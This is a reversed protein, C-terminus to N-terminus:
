GRITIHSRHTSLILLFGSLELIGYGPWKLMILVDSLAMKHKEPKPTDALRVGGEALMREERKKDNELLFIDLLACILTVSGIVLVTGRFGVMNGIAIEAM